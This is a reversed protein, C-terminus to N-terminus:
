RHRNWGSHCGSANARMDLKCQGGHHRQHRLRRRLHGGPPRPHGPRDVRPRHRLRHRWHLSILHDFPINHNKSPASLVKVLLSATSAINVTKTHPIVPAFLAWLGKFFIVSLYKKGSIAAFIQPGIRAWAYHEEMSSMALISKVQDDSYM